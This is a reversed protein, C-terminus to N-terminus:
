VLRENVIEVLTSGYKKELYTKIEASFPCKVVGYSGEKQGELRYLTNKRCKSLIWQKEEFEDLMQFVAMELDSESSTLVGQFTRFAQDAKKLPNYINPGGTGRNEVLAVPKGDMYLKATFAPTEHSLSKALKIAKLEFTHDLLLM